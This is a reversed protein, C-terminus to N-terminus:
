SNLKSYVKGRFKSSEVIYREHQGEGIKEVADFAEIKFTLKRGEVGVLEAVARVKMGIPTAAMHKINVATGVTTYGKPLHLSVASLASREMLSIMAPTAYVDLDGSGMEVASSKNFVEMEISASLGVQLNINEMGKKYRM